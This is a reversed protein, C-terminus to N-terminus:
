DDIGRRQYYLEVAPREGRCLEKQLRVTNSSASSEKKSASAMGKGALQVNGEVATTEYVEPIELDWDLHHIFLDTQPLEVTVQGSVPDFATSQLAYSFSIVTHADTGKKGSLQEKLHFELENDNRRVPKVAKGNVECTLIQDLSPINVTWDLAGDQQVHYEAQVLMAGDNVLRTEFKALSVTAQLTELVPLWNAQLELTGQTEATVFEIKELHERLWKPLRRSAVAGSLGEGKWELGEVTEIAVLHQATAGEGAVKPPVISWEDSLPSQAIQYSLQFRRDLQDRTKWAILLKRQGKENHMLRWSAIDDGDVSVSAVNHPLLLNMSLGSGSDSQAFVRAEYNLRGEAHRVFMQSQIDWISELVPADSMVASEMLLTLEGGDSALLYDMQGSGKSANVEANSDGGQLRIVQDDPLGSVRLRNLTAAAPKLKMGQHNSWSESGLARLTLKVQYEGEGKALFAYTSHTRVVSGKNVEVKELSVDGGILPVIQWKDSFVQVRYNATLKSKDESIELDYEASMVMSDIPVDEKEPEEDKERLEEWLQKMDAYPLTVKGVIGPLMVDTDSSESNTEVFSDAAPMAASLDFQSEQEAARIGTAFNIFLLSASCLICHIFTKMGGSQCTM